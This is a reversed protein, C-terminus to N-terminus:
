VMKGIGIMRIFNSVNSIYGISEFSDTETIKNYYKSFNIDDEILGAFNVRGKSESVFDIKSKLEEEKFDELLQDELLDDKYKVQMVKGFQVKNSYWCIDKWDKEEDDYFYDDNEPNPKIKVSLLDLSDIKTNLEHSKFAFCKSAYTMDMIFNEISKENKIRIGSYVIDSSSPTILIGSQRLKFAMEEIRM